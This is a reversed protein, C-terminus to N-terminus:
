DPSINADGQRGPIEVRSRLTLLLRWFYDFRNVCSKKIEVFQFKEYLASIFILDGENPILLRRPALFTSEPHSCVDEKTFEGNQYNLTYKKLSTFSLERLTLKEWRPTEANVEENPNIGELTFIHMGDEGLVFNSGMHRRIYEYYIEDNEVGSRKDLANSTKSSGLKLRVEQNAPIWRYWKLVGDEGLLRVSTGKFTLYYKIPVFSNAVDKFTQKEPDPEYDPLITLKEVENNIILVGLGAKYFMQGDFRMRIPK